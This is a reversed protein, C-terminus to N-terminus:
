SIDCLILYPLTPDFVSVYIEEIDPEPETDTGSSLADEINQPEFRESSSSQLSGESLPHDSFSSSSGTADWFTDAPRMDPDGSNSVSPASTSGQDQTFATPLTETDPKISLDDEVYNDDKLKLPLTHRHSTVVSTYAVQSKKASKRLGLGHAVRHLLASKTTKEAKIQGDPTDKTTSHSASQSSETQLDTTYFRSTKKAEKRQSFAACNLIINIFLIDCQLLYSCYYNYM